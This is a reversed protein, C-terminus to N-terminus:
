GQGEERLPLPSYPKKTREAASRAAREGKNEISFKDKKM